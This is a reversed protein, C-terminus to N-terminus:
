EKRKSDILAEFIYNIDIHGKVDTVLRVWIDRARGKSDMITIYQPLGKLPATSIVIFTGTEGTKSIIDGVKLEENFARIAM